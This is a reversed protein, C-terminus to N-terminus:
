SAREGPFVSVDELAIKTVALRIGLGWHLIEAGEFSDSCVTLSGTEGIQAVFMEGEPWSADFEGLDFAGSFSAVGTASGAESVTACVFKGNLKRLETLAQNWDLM